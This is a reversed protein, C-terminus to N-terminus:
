SSARFRKVNGEEGLELEGLPRRGTESPHSTAITSARQPTAGEHRFGESSM